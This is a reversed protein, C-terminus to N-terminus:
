EVKLLYNIANIMGRNEPTDQVQVTQHIRKLGLGKVTALHKPLRKALSKVLTITVMKKSTANKNAMAKM